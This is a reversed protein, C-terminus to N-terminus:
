KKQFVYKRGLLIVSFIFACSFLGTNGILLVGREITQAEFGEIEIETRTKMFPFLSVIDSGYVGNGVYDGAGNVKVDANEVPKGDYAYFIRTEVHVRTPTVTSADQVFMIEDFICSVQNSKFSTLDYLDDEIGVVAYTVEGVEDIDPSRDLVVNGEFPRGDYEYTGTHTIEAKLGVQVRQSAADLRLNVRDWILRLENSSFATLDHIEDHVDEVTITKEQVSDSFPEENYIISGHFPTGDYEYYANEITTAYSGLDIRGNEADLEISVRDWIIEPYKDNHRFIGTGDCTVEIIEWRKECVEDCTVDFNAWGQEDTKVTQGGEIRIDAGVADTGNKWRLHFGIEQASGVDVRKGSPFVRDVEVYPPQVPYYFSGILSTDNTYGPKTVGVHWTFVEDERPPSFGLSAQGKKDSLVSGIYSDEVYFSCNAGEIIKSSSAATARLDVDSTVEGINEGDIPGVLFVALKPLYTFSRNESSFRSSFGPVWATAYWTHHGPSLDEVPYSACGNSQTFANALYEDDLYFFVSADEIPVEDLKISVSLGMPLVSVIDGDPPKLDIHGFAFEWEECTTSYFGSKEAKVYWTYVRDELPEFDIYARGSADSMRTGHREGDVYFTVEADPIPNQYDTLEVELRVPSESFFADRLATPRKIRIDPNEMYIVVLEGSSTVSVANPNEFQSKSLELGSSQWQSFMYDPDPVYRVIYVGSGLYATSPLDYVVDNILLSGKNTSSGYVESSSLFITYSPQSYSIGLPGVLFLLSLFLTFLTKM